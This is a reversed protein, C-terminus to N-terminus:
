IAIFFFLSALEHRFPKEGDRRKYNPKLRNQFIPSAKGIDHIIAGYRAIQKDFGYVEAAKEIASVVHCLHAHLTTYDPKGKAKLHECVVM